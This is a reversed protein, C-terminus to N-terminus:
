LQDKLLWCKEKYIALTEIHINRLKTQSAINCM